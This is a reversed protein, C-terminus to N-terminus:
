PIHLPRSDSIALVRGDAGIAIVRWHYIGGPTLHSRALRSLRAHDGAPVVLGTLPRRAAGVPTGTDSATRDMLPQEYLELQYASAGPVAQWRFVTAATLTAGAPPETVSLLATSRPTATAPTPQIRYELEPVSFPTRPSIIRLRVRYNGTTDTPLLPSQLVINGSASLYQRLSRLPTFFAKGHSSEPRAVEWVADLQGTGSFNLYAQARVADGQSAIRVRSGDDFRLEVRAINLQGAAAGALYLTATATTTTNDPFDTFTRSYRLEAFGQKRARFLLSRPITILESFQFTVLQPSTNTVTKQQLPVPNRLLTSGDPTTLTGLSSSIAVPGPNGISSSVQWDVRVSATNDVALNRNVANGSSAIMTTQGATPLLLLLWLILITGTPHRDQLM